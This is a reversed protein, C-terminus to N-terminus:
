LALMMDTHEIETTVGTGASVEPKINAKKTKKFLENQIKHILYKLPKLPSIGKGDAFSCHLLVAHRRCATVLETIVRLRTIISSKNKFTQTNAATANCTIDLYHLSLTKLSISFPLCTCTM